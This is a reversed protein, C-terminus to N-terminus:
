KSATRPISIDEAYAARVIQLHAYETEEDDDQMPQDTSPIKNVPQSAMQLFVWTAITTIFTILFPVFNEQDM